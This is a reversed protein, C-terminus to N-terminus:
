IKRVGSSLGAMGRPAPELLLLLVLEAALLRPKPTVLPPGKLLVGKPLLVGEIDRAGDEAGVPCRKVKGGPPRMGGATDGGSAAGVVVGEGASGAESGYVALAAADAPKPAM